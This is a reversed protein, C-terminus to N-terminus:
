QATSARERRYDRLKKVGYGAAILVAIPTSIRRAAAALGAGVIAGTTGSNGHREAIKEGIVAGIIKGFMNTDGQNSINLAWGRTGALREMALNARNVLQHHSIAGRGPRFHGTWGM